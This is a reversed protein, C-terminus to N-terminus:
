GCVPWHGAGHRSLLLWARWTQEHPSAAAPDGTGGVANWTSYSFQYTGRYAGGGGIARPDNRSECWAISRLKDRGWRPVRRDVKVRYLAARGKPTSRYHRFRRQMREISRRLRADSPHSRPTTLDRGVWAGHRDLKDRWHDYRDAAPTPTVAAVLALATALKV